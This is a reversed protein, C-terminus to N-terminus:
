DLEGDDRGKAGEAALRLTEDIEVSPARSPASCILLVASIRGPVAAVAAGGRIEGMVHLAEGRADDHGIGGANKVVDGDCLLACCGEGAHLRAARTAIESQYVRVTM